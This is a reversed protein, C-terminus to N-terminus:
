ASRDLFHAVADFPEASETVLIQRHVQGMALILDAQLKLQRAHVSRAREILDQPLPPLSLQWLDVAALEAFRELDIGNRSDLLAQAADATAECNALVDEWSPQLQASM